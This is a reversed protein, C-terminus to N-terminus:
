SAQKQQISLRFGLNDLINVVTTFSPNGEGALRAMGKFRTVAAIAKLLLAPDNENVVAELYAIIDEKTEIFEAADWDSLTEM